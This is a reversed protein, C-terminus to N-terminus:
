CAIVHSFAAVHARTLRDALPHIRPGHGCASSTNCASTFCSGVDNQRVHTHRSRSHRSLRLRYRTVVIVSCSRLVTLSRLLRDLLLSCSSWSKKASRGHQHAMIRPLRHAFRGHASLAGLSYPHPFTMRGERERMATSIMM